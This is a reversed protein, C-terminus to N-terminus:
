PFACYTKQEQTPQQEHNVSLTLASNIYSVMIEKEVTM